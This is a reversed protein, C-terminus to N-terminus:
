QLKNHLYQPLVETLLSLTCNMIDLHFLAFALDVARNLDEQYKYQTIEKLVNTVFWPPGGTNLMSQFQHTAEISVWGQKHIKSWVKELQMSIPTNSIIGHQLSIKSTTSPHINYQMRRIIMSMLAFRESKFTENPDEICPPALFQQVMNMPKLLADQHLIQMYSCLWATACIPLCCWKSRMSDLIRKVDNASLTGQEWALLVEKIAAPVNLCIENWKVQSTKFDENSNFQALLADVKSNDTLALISEPSKPNGKEVMSERVWLEFFSDGGEESLVVQSGYINVISCLMLFSVDFLLARTQSQKPGEGHGYKYTENFKILKTVFTRLKGDVAAVATILDFSKGLIPCLVTQVRVMKINDADLTRLLRALTPEARIIVKPLPQQSINCDQIKQIWSTMSERKENIYTVHKSSILNVKLLENLICEVFNCNCKSDMIDLLPTLQLLLDFSDVIDQSYEYSQTADDRLTCHLQKFINPLKLITFAGWLSEESTGLVSNLNILCARMIDCYLRPNNQLMILKSVLYNTECGPALMIEVALLPQLCYTVPECETKINLEINHLKQLCTDIASPSRLTPNQSYFQEIEKCKKLVESHFETDEYKALYLMAMTFDSSLMNTLLTVCKGVIEEFLPQSGNLTKNLHYIYCQLLWLITSAISTALIGEETKGRCTMGVQSTELLELLSVICHPKHFNNYKSIHQLLAAYSILQSSLSHKLYSLVLHNPGPGILAQQLICDALNYVDGSVGRPLIMKIHIGWQLDTWRERWAKLLLAKISSTKSTVKSLEMTVM